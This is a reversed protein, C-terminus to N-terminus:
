VLLVARCFMLWDEAEVKRVDADGFLLGVESFEVSSATLPELVPVSSPAVTAITTTTETRPTIIIMTTM